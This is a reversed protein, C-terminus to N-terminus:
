PLKESFKNRFKVSIELSWHHRIETSSNRSLVWLCDFTIKLNFKWTSFRELQFVTWTSIWITPIKPDFVLAIRRKRHDTIKLKFKLNFKDEHFIKLNFKWRIKRSSFRRVLIGNSPSNEVQSKWSSIKLKFNWTSFYPSSRAARSALKWRFKVPIKSRWFPLFKLNFTDPQWPFSSRRFIGILYRFKLSIETLFNVLPDDPAETRHVFNGDIKRSIELEFNLKLIRFINPIGMPDIETMM